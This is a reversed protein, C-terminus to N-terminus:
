CLPLHIGFNLMGRVLFATRAPDAHASQTEEGSGDHTSQVEVARGAPWLPEIDWSVPQKTRARKNGLPYTTAHPSLPRKSSAPTEM